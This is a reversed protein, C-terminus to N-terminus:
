RFNFFCKWDSFRSSRRFGWSELSRNWGVGSELSWWFAGFRPGWNKIHEYCRKGLGGNLDVYYCQRLDLSELKPCGDLIAELEENTMRQTRLRLHCLNPMNKAIALAQENSERVLKPGFKYFTFSKLKHCSIGITEIDSAGVLDMSILHLEELYPLKKAADALGKGSILNCCHFTLRKLHTSINSFYLM